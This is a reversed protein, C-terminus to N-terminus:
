KNSRGRIVRQEDYMKSNVISLLRTFFAQAYKENKFNTIENGCGNIWIGVTKDKLQVTFESEM